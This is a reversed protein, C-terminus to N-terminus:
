LGRRGMAVGECWWWATPSSVRRAQGRSESWKGLASTPDLKQGEGGETGGERVGTEAALHCGEELNGSVMGVGERVGEGGEGPCSPLLGPRQSQSM